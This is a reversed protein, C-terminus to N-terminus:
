STIEPRKGSPSYTLVRSKLGPMVPCLLIATNHEWRQSGQLGLQLHHGKLRIVKEGKNEGRAAQRQANVEQM